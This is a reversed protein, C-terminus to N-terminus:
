SFNFCISVLCNNKRFFFNIVYSSYSCMFHPKQVNLMKIWILIFHFFNVFTCTFPCCFAPGLIIAATDENFHNLIITKTSLWLLLFAKLHTQCVCVKLKASLFDNFILLKTPTKKNSFSYKTYLRKQWLFWQHLYEYGIHYCHKFFQRQSIGAILLFFLGLALYDM